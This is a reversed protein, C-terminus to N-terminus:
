RAMVQVGRRFVRRPTPAEAIAQRLTTAPVAVLDAV